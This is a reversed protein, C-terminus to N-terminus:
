KEEIEKGAYEVVTLKGIKKRVLDQKDVKGFPRGM